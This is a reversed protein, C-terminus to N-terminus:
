YIFQLNLFVTNNLEIIYEFIENNKERKLFQVPSNFINKQSPFITADHWLAESSRWYARAVRAGERAAPRQTPGSLSLCHSQIRVGFQACASTQGSRESSLTSGLIFVTFNIDRKRRDNRRGEQRSMERGRKDRAEHGAFRASNRRTHPSTAGGLIRLREQLCYKQFDSHNTNSGPDRSLVRRKPRPSELYSHRVEGSPGPSTSLALAGSRIGAAARRATKYLAARSPPLLPPLPSRQKLRAASFHRRDWHPRSVAGIRLARRSGRRELCAALGQYKAFKEAKVEELAVGRNEFPVAMDVIVIKKHVEDRIVLDPRLKAWKLDVCDVTQNVSVTGPIKLAKVLRDLVGDHRKTIAVFNSRCHQIVHLLTELHAGCKRCHKDGGSQWRKIANLPLVDLRAQHIFRTIGTPLLGAAASYINCRGQAEAVARSAVSRVGSLIRVPDTIAGATKVSTSVGEYSSKVFNRIPLPVGHRNLAEHISEHPVSGFANSLDLWAVVVKKRRTKADRLIERQVFNHEFCGEYPLFEKQSQSM